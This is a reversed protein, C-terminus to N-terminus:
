AMRPRWSRAPWPRSSRWCTRCRRWCSRPCCGPCCNTLACAHMCGSDCSGAAGRVQGPTSGFGQYVQDADALVAVLSGLDFSEITSRVDDISRAQKDLTSSFSTIDAALAAATAAAGGAGSSAFGGTDRAAAMTTTTAHLVADAPGLVAAFTPWNASGEFAPMAAGVADAAPKFAMTLVSTLNNLGGLTAALSPGMGNLLSEPGRLEDLLTASGNGSPAALLSAGMDTITGPLQLLSSNGEYMANLQVISANVVAAMSSVEPPLLCVSANAYLMRALASEFSLSANNYWLGNFTSLTATLNALQSGVIGAASTNLADWRVLIITFPNTAPTRMSDIAAAAARADAIEALWADFSSM